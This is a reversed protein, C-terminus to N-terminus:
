PRCCDRYRAGSGCPCRIHGPLNPAPSPARPGSPPEPDPAASAAAGRHRPRAPAMAGIVALETIRPLPVAVSEGTDIEEGLVLWTDGQQLLRSFRIQKISGGLELALPTEPEISQLRQGIKDRVWALPPRPPLPPAAAAPASGRLMEAVRAEDLEGSAIQVVLQELQAMMERALPDRKKGLGRVVMRAMAEFDALGANPGLERRMTDMVAQATMVATTRPPEPEAAAGRPAAAARPRVLDPRATRRQKRWAAVRERLEPSGVGIRAESPRPELDVPTLQSRGSVDARRLRAHITDPPTREDVVFVGPALERPDLDALVTRVRDAAAPDVAIVRGKALVATATGGEWDRVAAEVNQPVATRSAAALAALIESANVGASVSRRVSAKTLRWVMM